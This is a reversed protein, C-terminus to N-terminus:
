MHWASQPGCTHVASLDDYRRVEEDLDLESAMFKEPTSAHKMRLEMNEKYQVAHHM